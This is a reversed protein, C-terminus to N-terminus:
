KINVRNVCFIKWKFVMFCSFDFCKWKGWDVLLRSFFCIMSNTNYLTSPFIAVCKWWKKTAFVILHALNQAIKMIKVMFTNKTVNPLNCIIMVHNDADITLLDDYSLNLRNKCLLTSFNINSSGGPNYFEYFINSM